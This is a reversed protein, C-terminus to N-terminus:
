RHVTDMSHLRELAQAIDRIFSLIYGWDLESGNLTAELFKVISGESAYEM